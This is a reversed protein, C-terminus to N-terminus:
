NFSVDFSKICPQDDTYVVKKGNYDTSEYFTVRGQPPVKISRIRPPIGDKQFNPSKACFEYAAGKYDCESYFIPCAEKPEYWLKFDRIGWSEDNADQNLTSTLFIHAEAGEHNFIQDVDFKGDPYAGLGCLNVGGTQLNWEQKYVDVGDVKVYMWENDWSDIKYITM